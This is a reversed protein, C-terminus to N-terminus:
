IIEEMVCDWVGKLWREVDLNSFILVFIFVQTVLWKFQYAAVIACAVPVRASNASVEGGDEGEGIGSEKIRMKVVGLVKVMMEM